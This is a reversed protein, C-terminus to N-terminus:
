VFADTFINYVSIIDRHAILCYFNKHKNVISFGKYLRIYDQIIKKKINVPDLKQNFIERLENFKLTKQCKHKLEFCSGDNEFVYFAKMSMAVTTYFM